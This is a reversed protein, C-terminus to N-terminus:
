SFGKQGLANFYWNQSINAVEKNNPDYLGLDNDVDLSLKLDPIDEEEIRIEIKKVTESISPLPKELVGTEVPTKDIVSNGRSVIPPNKDKVSNYLYYIQTMSLNKDFYNVNCLGGNIGDVDGVVLEDASMEPVVQVVTKVLQGNYFIDVTGGNYNFIINNWKQLLVNGMKFLILKADVTFKLEKDLEDSHYDMTILLKNELLNYSINPKGGYDLLTSYRSSGSKSNPGDSDIYFWFSLAYQYDYKSSVNSNLINYSGINTQYSISIPENVLLRGGQKEFRVTLNPYVYFYIVYSFVAVLLLVFNSSKTEKINQSINTKGIYKMIPSFLFGSIKLLIEYIPALLCPIYFVINIFLRYAPVREYLDGGSIIKFIIFLVISIIFLNLFVSTIGETTTLKDAVTTLWGISLGTLIIGFLILFAQKAIGTYNELTKMVKGNLDRPVDKFALVGFFLIWIVFIIVLLVVILGVALKDDGTQNLFGGPYNFIGIIVLLLFIIFSVGSLLGVTTLGRFFGRNTTNTKQESSLSPLTMLTLLYLFGFVILVLSLVLLPGFYTKFYDGPDMTYFILLFVIFCFLIVTYKIREMNVDFNYVDSTKLAKYFLFLGLIFSIPTIIFSYYDKIRTLTNRFIIILAILYIVLFFLYKFKGIFQKVSKLNPLLIILITLIAFLFSIIMFANQVDRIANPNKEPQGPPKPNYLQVLVLIILVFMLLFVIGGLLPKKMEHFMTKIDMTDGTGTTATPATSPIAPPDM